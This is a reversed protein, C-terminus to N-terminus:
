PEEQLIYGAGFQTHILKRDFEKDVKRRLYNVYVEVMNTGTDFDINWVNRALESRSIVRGKNRILYELLTCEKKTLKIEKGGRSAKLLPVDVTLDGYVLLNTTAPQTTRKLLSKIRVILERFEFPKTLYDDAGVDFGNVINDTTGLASLMLIPIGSKKNRLQKCLTLGDIGPLVIDSIIIDFPKQIALGLGVNGDNTLEVSYDNEELGKKIFHATKEEDEILLIRAM